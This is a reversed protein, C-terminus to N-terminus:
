SASPESWRAARRVAGAPPSWKSCNPCPPVEGPDPGGIRLRDLLEDLILEASALDADHGDTGSPDALVDAVRGLNNALAALDDPDADALYLAHHVARRAADRMARVLLLRLTDASHPAGFPIPDHNPL